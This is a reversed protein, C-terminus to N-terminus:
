SQALLRGLITAGLEVDGSLILHPSRGTGKELVLGDAFVEFGLLASLRISTNKRQGDFIVRKNTLYLTGSDIETLGETTVRRPRSGGVRYYVGRAIRISVGQSHYGVTTTSKRIENWTGSATFHCTEGKQLNLPIAVVPLDGNEIRWLLAYRAMAAATQDDPSLAVGLNHALINLSEMEDPSLRRDALSQDLAQKLLESASVQLTHSQIAPSIRLGSGLKALAQREDDSIRSDALVASIARKLRPHVLEDEVKMIDDEGLDFLRRLACLYALEPDSLVDDTLFKELATSWITLLLFHAQKGTLHCRTIIDAIERPSIEDPRRKSLTDRLLHEAFEPRSRRFLRAFVGPESLTISSRFPSPPLEQVDAPAM